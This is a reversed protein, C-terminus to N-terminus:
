CDGLSVLQKVVREALAAKCLLKTRHGTALWTIGWTALFLRGSFHGRSHPIHARTQQRRAASSSCGLLCRARFAYWHRRATAKLGRAVLCLSVAVGRATVSMAVCGLDRMDRGARALASM